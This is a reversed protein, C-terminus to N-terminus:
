RLKKLAARIIQDSSMGATDVGALARLIETRNYGLVLLAEKDADPLERDIVRRIKSLEDMLHKKNHLRGATDVIIIDGRKAKAGIHAYRMILKDGNNLTNRMSAGDVVIGGFCANWAVRFCMFAICFAFLCSLFRRNSKREKYHFCSEYLDGDALNKNLKEFNEM